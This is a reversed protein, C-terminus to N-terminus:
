EANPSRRRHQVILVVISVAIYTCIGILFLPRFTGVWLPGGTPTFTAALALFICIAVTGVSTFRFKRVEIEGGDARIEGRREQSSYGLHRLQFYHWTGKMQVYSGGPQAAPGCDTRRSGISMQEAVTPTQYLISDSPSCGKHFHPAPFARLTGPPFSPSSRAFQATFPEM